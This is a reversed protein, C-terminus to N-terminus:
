SRGPWPALGYGTATAAPTAPMAPGGLRARRRGMRRGMRRGRALRALRYDAAAAFLERQRDHALQAYIASMGTM